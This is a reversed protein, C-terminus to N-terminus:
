EARAGAHRRPGAAGGAEPGAGRARQGSTSTPLCRSAASTRWCAYGFGPSRILAALAEAVQFHSDAGVRDGRLWLYEATLMELRATDDPEGTALAERARELFRDGTQVDVYVTAQAHDLVLRPWEPDDEPTLALADEYFRTANAYANLAVARRAADRLARRAREKLESDDVGVALAYELASM